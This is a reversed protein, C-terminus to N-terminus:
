SQSTESHMIDYLNMWTRFALMEKSKLLSIVLGNYICMGM